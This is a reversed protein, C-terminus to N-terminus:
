APVGEATSAPSRAVYEEAKARAKAALADVVLLRPLLSRDTTLARFMESVSVGHGPRHVVEIADGARIAGEELVRFYAGPRAEATFRKTWRTNDYGSLGMWAQFNVCPIRVYCIELLASGIRWREGVEAANVDLGRTTLNEAFGGDGIPRGLREAWLDLDERAFAYVAQEPGGHFRRDGTGDGELGLARVAVPGSVPRKGMATRGTEAWVADQPLSVNVSVLSPPM